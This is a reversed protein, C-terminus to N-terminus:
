PGPAPCPPLTAGLWPEFAAAGNLLDILRLIDNANAAGSRNIDTAHPPRVFGPVQNLANVLATIDAANAAGSANVDGPLCGLCVVEGGVPEVCTWHRPPIPRDFVVRAVGGGCNVAAIVPPPGDAPHVVVRFDNPGWAACDCGAALAFTVGDWGQAVTHDNPLHPQRADVACHAPDSSLIDRCPPACEDPVGDAPNVDLSDGYLIDCDDPVGNGNCDGHVEAQYAFEVSIFTSPFCLTPNVAPTAFLDIVLEGEAAAANFQARSVILVTHDPALPCDNAARHFVSAVFTGNIVVDIYENLALLDARAFIRMAVDHGAPPPAPVIIRQPQGAGIPTLLPSAFEFVTTECEDPVENGNCDASDGYAVDCEDPVGNANCDPSPIRFLYSSGSNSGADDTGNAGVFVTDGSIAVAYGISDGERSDSATFKASPIWAGRSQRFLYAAGTFWDGESNAGPAGILLDDGDLHVSWGFGYGPQADPATLTAVHWWDGAYERYVYAAGANLGVDDNGYAGVAVTRGDLSVSIGFFDYVASPGSTLRAVQQWMGDVERFIFAASTRLTGNAVALTTIAATDGSLSVAYGFREASQAGTGRVKAVPQWQGNIERFVYASGSNSGADDDGIAGIVVAQGDVAVSHGFLDGSAADYATLKAVEQWGGDVESFVYASGSNSGHDDDEPAGIIITSGSISVAHGFLDGDAGDSATLKAMMEWAGGSKRYVYASGSNIGADDDRVSGIVTTEGSTSVSYGFQDHAAADPATLKAVLSPTIDCEDPMGNFNCDPSSGDALDCDDPVGNDNCDNPGLECDDPIANGNCDASTGDALDCEDPVGNANCDNPGLECDDPIGNANCDASTGDALDCEDPVGNGNCDSSPIRFLLASAGSPGDAGASRSAGVAVSDKDVSIAGAFRESCMAEPAVIVGVERWEGLVERFVYAAGSDCFSLSPNAHDSYMAGIIVKDGFVAVSSGFGEYLSPQAPVLKVVQRWIGGMERLVYAAGYGYGSGQDWYASIVATNANLSVGFGYPGGPAADDAKLKAIQQWVGDTERFVYAAGSNCQPNGVCADDDFPAGVLLTVGDLSVSAGFADNPAADDADLRAVERWSGSVERFVYVSGSLYARGSNRYAGVVATNGFLSVAGGFYDRTGADSARLKTVERWIGNVERFIYASGSNPGADDDGPAGIIATNGSLAVSSGFSDSPVGDSAVLKAEQRLVGNERRFVFAAGSFPYAGSGQPVGLLIASGSMSLCAGYFSTSEADQATLEGVWIGVVDCEDPTGNGNCDQSIGSALDCDDPIGNTNCDNVMLECEDPLLNGNCDSSHGDRIDLFDPRGNANCDADLFVCEGGFEDCYLDLAECPDGLSECEGSACLELGTCFLGDDTCAAGDPAHNPLCAGAGDCTDPATCDTAGDEGCFSGAPRPLNQCVDGVCLDDTCDNGDECDAGILCNVCRDSTEDCTYFVPDGACPDGPSQCLGAVCREVGTCFVGDDTCLTDDPRNTWRTNDAAPACAQCENAPNTVEEVVCQGGILCSGPNIAFECRSLALNCTDTTCDRGDNCEVDSSCECVDITGNGNADHASGDRIECDDSLANANCDDLVDITFAFVSGPRDTGIPAGGLLYNGDMATSWGFRSNALRDSPLPYLKGAELWGMLGREFFYLSGSNTVGNDDDLRAGVFLRDGEIAVASGFNDNPATDSGRLAAEEVWDTGDFRFVYARQGSSSRDGVAILDDKIAVASGFNRPFSADSAVLRQHVSWTDGQRRLVYATGVIMDFGQQNPIKGTIAAAVAWEGDMALASGFFDGEKVQNPVIKQKQVWTAGEKRFVYVAGDNGGIVPNPRDANEAGILAWDGEIAVSSGFRDGSAIDSSRLIQELAWSAGLQRYVLAAGADVLPNEPMPPREAGPMGVIAVDGFMAVARGLEEGGIGGTMNLKAREVWGGLIREFIYAAGSNVLGPGLELVSGVIAFEGSMAVSTGFNAGAGSASGQLLASECPLQARVNISALVTYLLAITLHRCTM